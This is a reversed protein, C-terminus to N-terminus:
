LVDNLSAFHFADLWEKDLPGDAALVYNELRMSEDGAVDLSLGQRNFTAGMKLTARKPWIHGVKAL